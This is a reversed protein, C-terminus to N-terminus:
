SHPQWPTRREPRRKLAVGMLLAKADSVQSRLAHEAAGLLQV